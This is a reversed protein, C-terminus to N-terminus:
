GLFFPEYIFKVTATYLATEFQTFASLNISSGKSNKM